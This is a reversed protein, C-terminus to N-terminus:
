NISGNILKEDSCDKNITYKNFFIGGTVLVSKICYKEINENDNLYSNEILTDIYIVNSSNLTIEINNDKIYQKVSVKIDKELKLLVKDRNNNSIIILTTCMLVIITGWIIMINKSM